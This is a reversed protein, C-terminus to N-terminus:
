PKLWDLTTGTRVVFGNGVKIRIQHGRTSCASIQNLLESLQAATPTTLHTHRLWHRLVNAQRARSLMQLARIEPPQGTQLLDQEALEQLMDDIRRRSRQERAMRILSWVAFLSLLLGLLLLALVLPVAPFLTLLDAM